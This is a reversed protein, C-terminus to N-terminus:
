VGCADQRRGGAPADAMGCLCSFYSDICHLQLSERAIRLAAGSTRRQFFQPLNITFPRSGLIGNHQLVSLTNRRQHNRRYRDGDDLAKLEALCAPPEWRWETKRDRAMAERTHNLIEEWRGSLVAARLQFVAEANAEKWFISTGKLRLNIVRGCDHERDSWKGSTRGPVPFLQIAVTGGGLTPDPLQDGAVGPLRRAPGGGLEGIARDSGPEPGSQPLHSAPRIAGSPPGPGSGIGGVGLESSACWSM